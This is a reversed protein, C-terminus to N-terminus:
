RGRAPLLDKSRAVELVERLRRAEARAVRRGFATISYYRRNEAPTSAQPDKGLDEILGQGTLRSLMRYLSGIELHVSGKEQEEVARSIGYAHLPGDALILLLQFDTPKLPILDEVSPKRQGM